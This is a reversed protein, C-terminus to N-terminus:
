RPLWQFLPPEYISVSKGKSTNAHHTLIPIFFIPFSFFESVFFIQFCFIKCRKGNDVQDDDDDDKDHDDHDKRGSVSGLTTTVFVVVVLVVLVQLSKM